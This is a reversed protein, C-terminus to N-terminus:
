TLVTPGAATSVRRAQMQFQLLIQSLKKQESQANNNQYQLYKVTM